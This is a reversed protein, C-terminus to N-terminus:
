NRYRVNFSKGSGDDAVTVAPQDSLLDVQAKLAFATENVVTNTATTNSRAIYISEVPTIDFTQGPNLGFVTLPAYDGDIKRALGVVHQNNDKIANSVIISFTGPPSLATAAKKFSVGAGLSNPQAELETGDGARGGLTVAIPTTLSINAGATLSVNSQSANGLFGFIDSSIKFTVPEGDHLPRSQYFVVPLSTGGRTANTVHPFGFAIYRFADNPNGTNNQITITYEM